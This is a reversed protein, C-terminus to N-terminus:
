LKNQFYLMNLIRRANIDDRKIQEVLKQQSSFKRDGHLRKVFTIKIDEGYIFKRFDFIHVEIVPEKEEFTPRTGIYLVGGYKKNRLRVWVAYVGSPPIAEHHPDINATPYGLTRGRCVGRKVTGFVTVPRGLMRAAAKLEGKIIFNRITTSSVVKKAFKVMPVINVKFGYRLGYRQLASADGRGEKGFVFNSGIYVECAKLKDVLIKKVFIHPKLNSFKKDFKLVLCADVGLECILKVRHATSMLLPIPKHPRLVKLPHPDFTIVVSKGKIVQARRVAAKIIAKHGVHVGDFIGIAAITKKM